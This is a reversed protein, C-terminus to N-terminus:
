EATPVSIGNNHAGQNVSAQRISSRRKALISSQTLYGSGILDAVVRVMSSKSRLAECLAQWLSADLRATSLASLALGYKGSLPIEAAIATESRTKGGAGPTIRLSDGIEAKTKELDDKAAERIEIAQSCHEAAEQLLVPLKIVEEDLDVLDLPLHKKIFEYKEAQFSPQTSM